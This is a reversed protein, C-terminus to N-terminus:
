PTDRPASGPRSSREAHDEERAPPQESGQVPPALDRPPAEDGRLQHLATIAMCIGEGPSFVNLIGGADEDGGALYWNYLDQLTNGPANWSFMDVIPKAM